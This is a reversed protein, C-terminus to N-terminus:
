LAIVEIQQPFLQLFRKRSKFISLHLNNQEEQSLSVPLSTILSFVADHSYFELQRQSSLLKVKKKGNTWDAFTDANTNKLFIM